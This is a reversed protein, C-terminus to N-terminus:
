FEMFCKKAHIYLRTWFLALIIYGRSQFLSISLARIDQHSRVEAAFSVAPSHAASLSHLESQACQLAACPLPSLPSPPHPSKLHECPLIALPPRPARQHGRERDRERAGALARMGGFLASRDVLPVTSLGREREGELWGGPSLKQLAFRM